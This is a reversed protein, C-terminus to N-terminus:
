SDLLSVGLKEILERGGFFFCILFVGVLCFLSHSFLVTSLVAPLVCAEEGCRNSLIDIQFCLIVCARLDTAQVIM